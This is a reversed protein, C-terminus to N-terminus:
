GHAAGPRLVLVEILPRPYAVMADAKEYREFAVSPNHAVSNFSVVPTHWYLEGDVTHLM